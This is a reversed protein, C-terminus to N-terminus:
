PCAKTRLHPKLSAHRQNSRDIQCYNPLYKLLYYATSMQIVALVSTYSQHKAYIETYFYEFFPFHPVVKRYKKSSFLFITPFLLLLYFISTISVISFKFFVSVYFPFYIFILMRSYTFINSCLFYMFMSIYTWFLM